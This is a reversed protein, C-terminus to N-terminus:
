DLMPSEIHCFSHCIRQRVIFEPCEPDFWRDVRAWHIPHMLYPGMLGQEDTFEQEFVHTWAASGVTRLPRNLAYATITEVYRPMLLLDAEFEAVINPPTEPAVAVFLTRYVSGPFRLAPTQGAQYDVGDVHTVQVRDLLADLEPQASAWATEDAFQGHLLIDGGNRSGPLTPEVVHREAGAVAKRLEDIFVEIRSEDVGSALHVLRTVSYM